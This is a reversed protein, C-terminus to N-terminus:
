ISFNLKSSGKPEELKLIDGGLAHSNNILNNYVM